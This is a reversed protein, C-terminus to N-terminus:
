PASLSYTMVLYMLSDVNAPNRYVHPVDAQFVLADGTALLFRQGDVTIEVTGQSVVIYESTGPPHPDANEIGLPALRLEYFEVTRPSDFPFLARSTFKGDHSTLRKARDGRLLMPGGSSRNTVLASFPVDLARAIKWVVNITPASRGLEIQGLMARSVGSVKSLRELSLGRRTRLRRLNEGVIATLDSPAEPHAAEYTWAEEEDVETAPAVPRAQRVDLAIPVTSSAAPLDSNERVSRM